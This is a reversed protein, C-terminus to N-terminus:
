WRVKRERPGQRGSSHQPKRSGGLSQWGPLASSAAGAGTRQGADALRTAADDSLHVQLDPAAASAQDVPAASTKSVPKKKPRTM